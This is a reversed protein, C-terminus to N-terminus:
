FVFTVIGFYICSVERCFKITSIKGEIGRAGFGGPVVCGNSKRLREWSEESSQDDEDSAILSSAEIWEILLRQKTSMAAHTLAKVQGIFFLTVYIFFISCNPNEL